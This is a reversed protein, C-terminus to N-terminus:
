YRITPCYECARGSEWGACKDNLRSLPSAIDIRTELHALALVWLLFEEECKSGSFVRNAFRTDGGRAGNLANDCDPNDCSRSM